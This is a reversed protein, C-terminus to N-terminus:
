SAREDPLNQAFDDVGSGAISLQVMGLLMGFFLTHVYHGTVETTMGVGFFLLVYIGGLLWADRSCPSARQLSYVPLLWIMLLLFGGPLGAAVLHNIFVNHLHGHNGIDGPPIAGFVAEFRMQYGFGVLANRMFAELGGSYMALRIRLSSDADFLGTILDLLSSNRDLVIGRGSIFVQEYMALLIALVLLLGGLVAWMAVRPIRLLAASFGLLLIYAVIAGRAKIAFYLVLPAILLLILCVVKRLTSKQSFGILAVFTVGLYLTAFMLPNRAYFQFRDGMLFGSERLVQQLAGFGSNVGFSAAIAMVALVLSAMMSYNSLGRVDLRVGSRWLLAFLCALLPFIFNAKNAGYAGLVNRNILVDQFFLGFSYLFSVALLAKFENPLDHLGIGVTGVARAFLFAVAILVFVGGAGPHLAVLAFGFAPLNLLLVKLL